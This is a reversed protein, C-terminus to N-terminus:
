RTFLESWGIVLGTAGSIIGLEIRAKEKRTPLRALQAKLFISIMRSRPSTSANSERPEV